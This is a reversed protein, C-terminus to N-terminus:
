WQKKLEEKMRKLWDNKRITGVCLLSNEIMENMLMNIDKSDSM